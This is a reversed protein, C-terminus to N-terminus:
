LCQTVQPFMGGLRGIVVKDQDEIRSNAWGARAESAEQQFFPQRLVKVCATGAAQNERGHTIRMVEQRRKKLVKRM